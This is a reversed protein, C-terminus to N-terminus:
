ASEEEDELGLLRRVRQEVTLRKKTKVYSRASRDAEDCAELLTCLEAITLGEEIGTEMVGESGFRKAHRCLGELRPETM